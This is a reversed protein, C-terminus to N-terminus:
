GGFGGLVSRMAALGRHQLGKVAGETKGLIEAIEANSLGEGFKHVIVEAQEENLFRMATQLKKSRFITEFSIGCDDSSVWREDFAVRRGLKRKRGEERRFHDIMLNHAIRYLWGSLSMTWKRGDRIADIMRVFVDQTLEEALGEDGIRHYLYRYIKESYTDYIEGIADPDIGSARDLLAREDAGMLSAGSAIGEVADQPGTGQRDLGVGSVREESVVVGSAAEATPGTNRRAVPGSPQVDPYLGDVDVRMDPPTLGQGTPSEDPLGADIPTRAAGIGQEPLGGAAFSDRRESEVQM